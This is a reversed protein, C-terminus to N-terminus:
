FPDQNSDGTTLIVPYLITATKNQGRGYSVWAGVCNRIIELELSDYLLYTM